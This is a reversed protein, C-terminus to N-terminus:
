GTRLIMYNYTSICEAIDNLKLHCAAKNEYGEFMSKNYKIFKTFYHLAKHYEKKNFLEEGNKFFHYLRM